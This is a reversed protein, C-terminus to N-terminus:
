STESWAREMFIALAVLFATPFKEELSQVVGLCSQYIPNPDKQLQQWDKDLFGM